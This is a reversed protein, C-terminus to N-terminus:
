HVILHYFTVSVWGVMIAIWWLGWVTIPRWVGIALPIIITTGDALCLYWAFPRNGMRSIMSYDIGLIAIVAAAQWLNPRSKARQPAFLRPAKRTNIWALGYLLYFIWM